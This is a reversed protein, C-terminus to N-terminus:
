NRVGGLKMRPDISANIIDVLFMAIIYGLSITVICGQMLPLDKAIISDYLLKGIGPWVFITEVIVSGGLIHGIELGSMTIVPPMVNVLAHKKIMQATSLGKSKATIMYDQGIVECMSARTIRFTTPIMGAMLTIGPLILSAPSSIGTIPLWGLKVCFILILALALWFNPISGFLITLFRLIHDMPGNRHVAVVLGLPVSILFAIAFATLGLLLTYPIKHILLTWVPLNHVYSIGWNGTLAERLWGWYQLILPSSLDYMQSVTEVDEVFVTDDFGIFTHTLITVATDGPALNLVVFSLFSVAILVFFCSIMRKLMYKFM